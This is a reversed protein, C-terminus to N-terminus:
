MSRTEAFGGDGLMFSVFSFDMTRAKLFADSNAFIEDRSPPQFREQKTQTRRKIKQTHLKARWRRELRPALVATSFNLTADVPLDNFFKEILKDLQNKIEGQPM